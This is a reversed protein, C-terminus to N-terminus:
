AAPRAQLEGTSPIPVHPRIAARLEQTTFPKAIFATAGADFAANREAAMARASAVLIPTKGWRAQSRIGRILTLGDVDPLMVDVLFLMPPERNMLTLAESTSRALSVRLGYSSLIDEMITLYAPEDDVVLVRSRIM